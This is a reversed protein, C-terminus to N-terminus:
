SHKSRTLIHFFDFDPLDADPVVVTRFFHPREPSMGVDELHDATFPKIEIPM